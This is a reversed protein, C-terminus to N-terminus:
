LGATRCAQVPPPLSAPYAVPQRPLDGREWVIGDPGVVKVQYRLAASGNWDFTVPGPLLRTERPSVIRPAMTPGRVALQEFRPNKQQGMLFQVVGGLLGHISEAGSRGRPAQIAFPSNSASVTQVGGGSFLIVLHADATARVLDGPRLALLPQAFVWESEGVRQVRVEGTGVHVESVVALPDAAWATSLLLLVIIAGPLWTCWRRSRETRM